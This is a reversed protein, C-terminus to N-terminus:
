GKGKVLPLDASQWAAIGGGLIVPQYGLTRIKAAVTQSQVGKACVLIITKNKYKNMKAQEFDDPSANVSDIIHGNKFSEKDRIDIVAANDNNILAVAAQPSLQKANKKQSFLEYFCFNIILLIIFAAWLLWHNMIFQSLQEMAHELHNLYHSSNDESYRILALLLTTM